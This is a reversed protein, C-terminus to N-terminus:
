IGLLQSIFYLSQGWLFVGDTNGEASPLKHMQPKNRNVFEEKPVYYLMPVLPGTSIYSCCIIEFQIFSYVNQM